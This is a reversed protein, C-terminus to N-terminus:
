GLGVSLTMLLILSGPFVALAKAWDRWTSPKTEEKEKILSPDLETQNRRLLDQAYHPMSQDAMYRKFDKDIRDKPVPWHKAAIQFLEYESRGTELSIKYLSNEKAALEERGDRQSKRILSWFLYGVLYLACAGAVTATVSISRLGSDRDNTVPPAYERSSESFRQFDDKPKESQIMARGLVAIVVIAFFVMIKKDMSIVKKEMLM